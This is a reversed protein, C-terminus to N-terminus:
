QVIYQALEMWIGDECGVERLHKKFYRGQLLVLLNLATLFLTWKQRFLAAGCCM